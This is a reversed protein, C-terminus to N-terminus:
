AHKQTGTSRSRRMRRSAKAKHEREFKTMQDNFGRM